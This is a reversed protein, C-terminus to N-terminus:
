STSVANQDRKARARGGSDTDTKRLSRRDFGEFGNAVDQMRFAAEIAMEEFEGLPDRSIVVGAPTFGEFCDERWCDPTELLLSRTVEDGWSYRVLRKDLCSVSDM